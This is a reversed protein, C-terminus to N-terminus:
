RARSHSCGLEQGSVCGFRVGHVGEESFEDSGGQQDEESIAHDGVDDEGFGFAVASSPDDDGGSPAEGDEDSSETGGGEAAGM